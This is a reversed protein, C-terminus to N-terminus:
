MKRSQYHLEYRTTFGDASPVGGFSTVVWIYKSLQIIANFTLQHIQVQFKLLIDTLILHPPMSLGAAFFEKFVVVEDSHPELITEEEPECGMGETFYGHDIMGRIQKVIVTSPGFYNSRTRSSEDMDGGAGSHSGADSLPISETREAFGGSERGENGAKAAADVQHTTSKVRAMVPKSFLAFNDRMMLTFITPLLLV